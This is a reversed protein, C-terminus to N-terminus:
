TAADTAVTMLAVWSTQGNGAQFVEALETTTLTEVDLGEVMFCDPARRKLRKLTTSAGLNLWTSGLLPGAVPPQDTNTVPEPNLELLEEEYWSM